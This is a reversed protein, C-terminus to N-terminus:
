IRVKYLKRLITAREKATLARWAPYAANAAEIARRTEAQGLAPVQGLPEGTAPNVVTIFRGSDAEIWKGGVYCAQRFLSADKLALPASVNLM